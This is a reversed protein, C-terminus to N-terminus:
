TTPVNGSAIAPTSTLATAPSTTAATTPATAPATAPSTAPATAPATAPSTVPATTVVRDTEDGISGDDAQHKALYELGRGVFEDLQPPLAPATAAAAPRTAAPQGRSAQHVVVSVCTGAIM